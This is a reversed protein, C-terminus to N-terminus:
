PTPAAPTAAASTTASAPRVADDQKQDFMTTIVTKEKLKKIFDTMETRYKEERLIRRIRDQVEPFPAPGAERQKELRVIHYSSPAEIVPSTQNLRLGALADNVQGIAYSGPSTEWLGGSSKNPGDSESKAVQAFDEGRLLRGLVADAKRRADARSPYKSVEVVVERWTIRAPEDYEQKHANYYDYMEPLDVQLKHGLKQDIYGRALFDRRYQQRMEDLSQGREKMKEKLEFENTAGAKRLMHPLEEERFVRDSISYLMDLQKPKLHHKAEQLVVSREILTNLVGSVIMEQEERSFKQGQPAGKM